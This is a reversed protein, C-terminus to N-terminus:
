TAEPLSFCSVHQMGLCPIFIPLSACYNKKEPSLPERVGLQYYDVISINQWTM